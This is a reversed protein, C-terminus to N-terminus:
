FSFNNGKKGTDYCPLCPCNCCLDRTALPGMKASIESADAPECCCGPLVPDSRPPARMPCATAHCEPLHQRRWSAWLLLVAKGLLGKSCDITCCRVCCSFRNRTGKVKITCVSKWIRGTETSLYDRTSRRMARTWTCLVTCAIHLAGDKRGTLM